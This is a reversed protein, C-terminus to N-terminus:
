NQAFHSQTSENKEHLEDIRKYVEDSTSQLGDSRPQLDPNTKAEKDDTQTQKVIPSQGGKCNRVVVYCPLAFRAVTQLRATDGYTQLVFRDM